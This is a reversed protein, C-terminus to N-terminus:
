DSTQGAPRLLAWSLSLQPAASALKQLDVPKIVCTEAGLRRCEAEDQRSRSRTLVAVPITRTHPNVKVQRLVELGSVRPLKLDLLMLKPADVPNRAAYKGHCFVFDLVQQGDRVVHIRNALGASKFSQVTQETDREDGDALLIDVLSEPLIPIHGNGNSARSFLAPLSLELAQALKEINALSLNRAGREVDAVYTRHLGARGALEEQSIRLLKRRSKVATGFRTKIDPSPTM